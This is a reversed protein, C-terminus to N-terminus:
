FFNILNTTTKKFFPEHVLAGGNVRREAQVVGIAVLVRFGETARPDQNTGDVVHGSLQWLFGRIEETFQEIWIGHVYDLFGVGFLGQLIVIEIWRNLTGNDGRVPLQRGVELVDLLQALQILTTSVLGVVALFLTFLYKIQNYNIFLFYLIM